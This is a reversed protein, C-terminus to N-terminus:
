FIGIWDLIRTLIGPSTKEGIPGKGEYQINADAVFTSLITNDASIDEPRITGTIVLNQKEDNIQIVKVGRIVLNNNSLVKEVKASIKAILNGSRSSNGGGAQSEMGGAGWSPVSPFTVGGGWQSLGMGASLHQEKNTKLGASQSGSTSEIVFITVLDGARIAKHDVYMSTINKDSIIDDASVFIAAFFLVAMSILIVKKM